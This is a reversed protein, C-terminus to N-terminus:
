RLIKIKGFSIGLRLNYPLTIHTRGRGAPFQTNLNKGPYLRESTSYNKLAGADPYNGYFTFHQYALGALMGLAIQYGMYIPHDEIPGAYAKVAKPKMAAISLMLVPLVARLISWHSLKVVTMAQYITEVLTVNGGCFEILTIQVVLILQPHRYIHDYRQEPALKTV